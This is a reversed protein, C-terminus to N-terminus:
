EDIFMVFKDCITLNLVWVCEFINPHIPDIFNSTEQLVHSLM